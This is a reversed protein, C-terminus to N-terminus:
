YGLLFLVFFFLNFMRLSLIGSCPPRHTGDDWTMGEFFLVGTTPQVSRIAAAVKEYFPQLNQKDAVGPILLLPDAIVDGAWPENLIEYGILARALPAYTRAVAAFFASFQDTFTANSYLQQFAFSVSSTFYIEFRSVFYFFFRFSFCVFL